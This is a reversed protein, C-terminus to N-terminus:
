EERLGADVAMALTTALNWYAAIGIMELTEERSFGAQELERFDAARLTGPDRAIRLTFEVVRREREELPLTGPSECLRDLAADDFGLTALIARSASFCAQCGRAHAILMGAIHQAAGYRSPVPIFAQQAEVWAKLLRPHKALAYFVEPVRGPKVRRQLLEIYERTEPPVQHEAVLQFFAM